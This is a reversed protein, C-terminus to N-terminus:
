RTVLLYIVAGTLGLVLFFMLVLAAVLRSVGRIAAEAAKGLLAGYITSM